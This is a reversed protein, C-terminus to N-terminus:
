TRPTLLADLQHGTEEATFRGEAVGFTFAVLHDEDAVIDYGNAMCLAAAAALGTRKNGDVFPHNQIIGHMLAGAKAALTPYFEQDGIGSWQRSVASLLGTRDVLGDADKIALRNIEIVEILDLYRLQTM